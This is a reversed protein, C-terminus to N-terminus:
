SCECGGRRGAERELLPTNSTAGLYRIIPILTGIISFSSRLMFELLSNGIYEFYAHNKFTEARRGEQYHLHTTSTDYTRFVAKKEGDNPLSRVFLPRILINSGKRVLWLVEGWIVSTRSSYPTLCM